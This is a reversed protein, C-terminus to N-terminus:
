IEASKLPSDQSETMAIVLSLQWVDFHGSSGNQVQSTPEVGLLLHTLFIVKLAAVVMVMSSKVTIMFQQNYANM